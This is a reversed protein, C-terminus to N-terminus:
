LCRDKFSKLTDTQCHLRQQYAGEERGLCVCVRVPDGEVKKKIHVM